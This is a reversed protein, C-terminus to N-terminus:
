GLVKSRRDHINTFQEELTVVIGKALTDFGASNGDEAAKLALELRIKVSLAGDIAEAYEALRQYKQLLEDRIEPSVSPESAVKKGYRTSKVTTPTASAPTTQDFAIGSKAKGGKSGNGKKAKTASSSKGLLAKRLSKVVSDKTKKSIYGCGITLDFKELGKIPKLGNELCGAEILWDESIAGRLTISLHKVSMKSLEVLFCQYSATHLEGMGQIDVHLSRVLQKQTPAVGSAVFHFASFTNPFSPVNNGLPLSSGTSGELNIQRCTYLIATDIRGRLFSSTRHRGSQKLAYKYIKDRLETPLDLFPFLGQQTKSPKDKVGHDTGAVTHGNEDKHFMLGEVEEHCQCECDEEQCDLYCQPDFDECYAM